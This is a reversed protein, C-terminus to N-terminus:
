NAMNIKNQENVPQNSELISRADDFEKLLIQRVLASVCETVGEGTKASTCVAGIFGQEEALKKLYDFTM